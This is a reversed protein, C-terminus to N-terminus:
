QLAQERRLTPAGMPSRQFCIPTHEETPDTTSAHSLAIASRMKALSSHSNMAPCLQFVLVSARRARNVQISVVSHPATESQSLILDISFVPPFIM